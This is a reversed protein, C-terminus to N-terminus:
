KKLGSADSLTPLPPNPDCKYEDWFREEDEDMFDELEGSLVEEAKKDHAMREFAQFKLLVNFM